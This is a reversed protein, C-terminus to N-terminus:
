AKANAFTIQCLAEGAGDGWSPTLPYCHMVNEFHEIVAIRGVHACEIYDAKM